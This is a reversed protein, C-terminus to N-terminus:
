NSQVLFLPDSISLFLALWSTLAPLDALTLCLYRAVQRHVLFQSPFELPSSPSSGNERFSNKSCASSFAGDKWPATPPDPQVLWEMGIRGRQRGSGPAQSRARRTRSPTSPRSKTRGVGPMWFSKRPSPLTM